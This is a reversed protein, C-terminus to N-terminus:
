KMEVFVYNIVAAVVDSFHSYFKSFYFSSFQSATFLAIFIGRIDRGTFFHEHCCSRPSSNKLDSPKERSNRVRWLLSRRKECLLIVKLHVSHPMNFSYFLKVTSSLMASFACMLMCENFAPRSFFCSYRKYDQPRIEHMKFSTLCLWRVLNQTTSCIKLILYSIWLVRISQVLAYSIIMDFDLLQSFEWEVAGFAWIASIWSQLDIHDGAKIAPMLFINICAVCFNVAFDIIQAGSFFSHLAFFLCHSPSSM